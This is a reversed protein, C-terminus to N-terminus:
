RGVKQLLIFFLGLLAGAVAAILLRLRFDAVVELIFTMIGIFSLIVVVTLGIWLGRM